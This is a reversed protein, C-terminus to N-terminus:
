QCHCLKTIIKESKNINVFCTQNKRAYNKDCYIQKKKLKVRILEYMGSDDECNIVRYIKENESALTMSRHDRSLKVPSGKPSVHLSHISYTPDSLNEQLSKLTHTM